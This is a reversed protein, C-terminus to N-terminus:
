NEILEFNEIEIFVGGRSQIEEDYYCNDLDGNQRKGRILVKKRHLTTAPPLIKACDKLFFTGSKTKLFIEHKDDHIRGKKDSFNKVLFYGKYNTSQACTVSLFPTSFVICFLVIYCNLSM